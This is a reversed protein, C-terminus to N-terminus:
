GSPEGGTAGHGGAFSRAERAPSARVAERALNVAVTSLAFMVWLGRSFALPQFQGVVLIGVYGLQLLACRLFLGRILPDTPDGRLRLMKQARDLDTFTLVLIAVFPVLGLLGEQSAVELIVNHPVFLTVEPHTAHLWSVFRETGVGLLPNSLFAEVAAKYVAARAGLDGGYVVPSGELFGFLQGLRAAYGAPAIWVGFAILLATALIARPDRIRPMRILALTGMAVAALLASRSVTLVMGFVLMVAAGAVLAKAVQSRYRLYLAYTFPLIMLLNAAAQNEGAGVGSRREPSWIGGSGPLLVASATAIVGSVILAIMFLDLDRVTRITHRLIFYFILVAAYTTWRFLLHESALGLASVYVTGVVLSVYFGAIWPLKRDPRPRSGRLLWDGAVLVLLVFSIIKNPTIV